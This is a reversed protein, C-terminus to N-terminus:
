QPHNAIVGDMSMNAIREAFANVVVTWSKVTLGEPALRFDSNLGLFDPITFKEGKYM